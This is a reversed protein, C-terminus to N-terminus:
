VVETAFTSKRKVNLLRSLPNVQRNIIFLVLFITLLICSLVGDHGFTLKWGYTKLDFYEFSDNLQFLNLFVQTVSLCAILITKIIYPIKTLATFAIMGITTFHVLFSPLPCVEEVSYVLQLSSSQNLNM